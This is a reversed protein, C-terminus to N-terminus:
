KLLEKTFKKADYRILNEKKEGLGLFIIPISFRKILSYIFGGKSTSDLKTIVLGSIPLTKSFHEVQSLTNQGSTGDLVLWCNQPYNGLKGLVRHIKSLEAMLNENDHLRGATDILLIDTKNEIVKELAKYAIGSPDKNMEGKVSIGLTEMRDKLQQIAGARFSDCGAVAVTKGKSQFLSALKYLTTTKGAGNVGSVLIVHPKEDLKLDTEGKELVPLMKTYLYEKIKEISIDAPLKELSESLEISDIPSIDAQILTEEFADRTKDDLKKGIFVESLKKGLNGFM